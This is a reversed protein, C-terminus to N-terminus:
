MALSIELSPCACRNITKPPCPPFFYNGEQKARELGVGGRPVNLLPSPPSSTGLLHRAWCGPGATPLPRLLLWSALPPPLDAASSPVESGGATAMSRLSRRCASPGRAAAFGVEGSSAYAPFRVPSLSRPGLCCCRIEKGKGLPTCRGAPHAELGPGGEAKMRWRCVWGPSCRIVSTDLSM